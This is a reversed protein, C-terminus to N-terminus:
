STLRYLSTSLGRKGSLVADDELSVTTNMLVPVLVQVRTMKVTNSL